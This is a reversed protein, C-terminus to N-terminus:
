LIPERSNDSDYCGGILLENSAVELGGWLIVNVGIGDGGSSM